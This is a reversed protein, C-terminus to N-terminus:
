RMMWASGKLNSSTVSPVPVDKVASNDNKREYDECAGDAAGGDKVLPKLVEEGVSKSLALIQLKRKCSFSNGHFVPLIVDFRVVWAWDIGIPEIVGTVKDRNRPHFIKM